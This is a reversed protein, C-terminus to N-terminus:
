RVGADRWGVFRVNPVQLSQDARHNPPRRRSAVLALDTNATVFCGSKKHGEPGQEGASPEVDERRRAKEAVAVPRHGHREAPIGQRIDAEKPHSPALGM